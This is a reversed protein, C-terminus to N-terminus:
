HDRGRYDMCNTSSGSMQRGWLSPLSLQGLQSVSQSCNVWSTTMQWGYILHLDPITQWGFVSTRVVSGRRYGLGIVIGSVHIRIGCDGANRLQGAVGDSCRASVTAAVARCARSQDARWDDPSLVPIDESVKQGVQWGLRLALACHCLRPTLSRTSNLAGGSVIYTM